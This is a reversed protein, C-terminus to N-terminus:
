EKKKGLILCLHFCEFTECFNHKSLKMKAGVKLTFTTLFQQNQTSKPIWFVFNPNSQSQLHSLTIFKQKNNM